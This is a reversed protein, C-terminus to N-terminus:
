PQPCSPIVRNQGDQAIAVNHETGMTRIILDDSKVM